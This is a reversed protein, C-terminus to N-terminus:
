RYPKSNTGTNRTVDARYAARIQNFIFNLEKSSIYETLGIHSSYRVPRHTYAPRGPM